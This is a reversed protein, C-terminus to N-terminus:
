APEEEIERIETETPEEITLSFDFRYTTPSGLTMVMTKIRKEALEKALQNLLKAGEHRAQFNAACSYSTSSLSYDVTWRRGKGQTISLEALRGARTLDALERLIEPTLRSKTAVSM